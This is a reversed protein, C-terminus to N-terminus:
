LTQSLELHSGNFKCKITCISVFCNHLLPTAPVLCMRHPGMMETKNELRVQWVPDTHKGTKATSKYVPELGEEKLNYVAVCGDYFGVAILHSHQEHIHLCLVGSNTPYIYEPFASNKLSYFVLMGRGQKSFDDPSLSLPSLIPFLHFCFLYEECWHSTWMVAWQGTYKCSGMGVAFLDQYKNNRNLVPANILWRGKKSCCCNIYFLQFTIVLPLPIFDCWSEGSYYHLDNQAFRGASPLSLCDKPKTMNSSGCLSFPARRTGSSM